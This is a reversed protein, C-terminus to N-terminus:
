FFRSQRILIVLALLVLHGLGLRLNQSARHPSAVIIIALDGVLALLVFYTVVRYLAAHRKEFEVLSLNQSNGVVSLSDIHERLMRVTESRLFCFRSMAVDFFSSSSRMSGVSLPVLSMSLSLPQQVNRERGIWTM